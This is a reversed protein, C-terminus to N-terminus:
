QQRPGQVKGVQTRPYATSSITAEAYRPVSRTDGLAPKTEVALLALGHPAKPHALAVESGAVCPSQAQPCVHVCVAWNHKAEAASDWHTQTDM